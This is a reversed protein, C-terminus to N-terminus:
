DKAWPADAAPQKTLEAGRKAPAVRRASEARLVQSLWAVADGHGHPWGKRARSGVYELWRADLETVERGLTMAVTAAAQRFWEPVPGRGPEGQVGESGLDSDSDSDSDSGPVDANCPPETVPAHLANGQSGKLDARRKQDRHKEVRTRTDARRKAIDESTENKASYNLIRFGDSSPAWLGAAVLADADKTAQKEGSWSGRLAYGPIEGNTQHGRAYLLGWLWTAMAVGARQAKPHDRLDVDVKAFIM